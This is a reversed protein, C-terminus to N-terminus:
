LYFMLYYKYALETFSAMGRQFLDDGRKIFVKFIKYNVKSVGVLAISDIGSITMYVAMQRPYDFMQIASRFQDESTATTSKLDAGLKMPDIFFDWKCRMPLTFKQGQFELDVDKIVIKQPVSSKLLNMCFPDRLFSDRMRLAKNFEDLDIPEGDITRKTFNIREPETIIADLLTGFRYAADKNGGLSDIAQIQGKLWSLDSNSVQPLSFYDTNALM